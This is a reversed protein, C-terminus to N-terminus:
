SNKMSSVISLSTSLGKKKLPEHRTEMEKKPNLAYSLAAMLHLPLSATM